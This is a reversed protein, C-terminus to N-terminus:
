QWSDRDYAFFEFDARYTEFVLNALDSNYQLADDVARHPSTNKREALALEVGLDEAFVRTLDDSLTEFRILRLNPVIDAANMLLQPRWHMDSLTGPSCVFRLFSEFSPIGDATFHDRHYQNTRLEHFLVERRMFNSYEQESERSGIVKDRYCSKL